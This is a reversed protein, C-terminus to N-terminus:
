TRNVAGSGKTQLNQNPPGSRLFEGYKQASQFLSLLSLASAMQSEPAADPFQGKVTECLAKYTELLNNM